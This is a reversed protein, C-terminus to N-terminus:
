KAKKKDTDEKVEKKDRIDAISEFYCKTMASYQDAADDQTALLEFLDMCESYPRIAIDNRVSNGYMGCYMLDSLFKAYGETTDLSVGGKATRQELAAIAHMGFKLPYVEDGIKLDYIGNM